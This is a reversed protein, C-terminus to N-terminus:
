NGVYKNNEFLGTTEQGGADTLTGQGHMQGKVFQGVYKRGDPFTLTGSGDGKKLMSSAM